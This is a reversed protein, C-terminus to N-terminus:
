PFSPGWVEGLKNAVLAKTKPDSGLTVSEIRATDVTEERTMFPDSGVEMLAGEPLKRSCAMYGTALAGSIRSLRSDRGASEQQHYQGL